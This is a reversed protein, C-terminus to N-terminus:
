FLERPTLAPSGLRSLMDPDLGSYDNIKDGPPLLMAACTLHGRDGTDAVLSSLYARICKFSRPIKIGPWHRSRM